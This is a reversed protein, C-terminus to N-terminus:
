TVVIRHLLRFSFQKLKNDKATSPYIFSYKNKWGTFIDPFKNKWNKIGTPETICNGNLVKDYNKCRM